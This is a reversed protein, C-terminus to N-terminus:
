SASYRRQSRTPVIHGFGTERAPIRAPRHTVVWIRGSAPSMDRECRTGHSAAPQGRDLMTNRSCRMTRSAVQRVRQRVSSRAKAM